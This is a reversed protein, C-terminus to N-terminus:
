PAICDRAGDENYSQLTARLSRGQAYRVDEVYWRTGRSVLTVEARWAFARRWDGKPWRKDVYILDVAVSTKGGLQQPEQYAAETAGEENGVFIDGELVHPKEGQPASRICRDQTIRATDLLTLLEPTIWTALRATEKVSPLASARRELAWSFFSQITNIPPTPAAHVVSLSMTSFLVLILARASRGVLVSHKDCCPRQTAHSVPSNVALPM